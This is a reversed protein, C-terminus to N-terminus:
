SRFRRVHATFEGGSGTLIIRVHCPVAKQRASLFARAAVASKHPKLQAFVRRTARDIAM